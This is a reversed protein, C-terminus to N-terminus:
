VTSATRVKAQYLQEHKGAQMLQVEWLSRVARSRVSECSADLIYELLSASLGRQKSGRAADLTGGEACRHTTAWDCRPSSSPLDISQSPAHCLYAVGRSCLARTPEAGARSGDPM